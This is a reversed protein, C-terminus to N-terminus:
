TRKLWLWESFISEGLHSRTQNTQSPKLSTWVACAQQKLLLKLTLQLVIGVIINKWALFFQNPLGWPLARSSYMADYCGKTHDLGTHLGKPSISGAFLLRTAISFYDDLNSYTQWFISDSKSLLVGKKPAGCWYVCIPCGEQWHWFTTREQNLCDSEWVRRKTGHRDKPRSQLRPLTSQMFISAWRVIRSFPSLVHRINKDHRISKNFVYQTVITHCGFRPSPRQSCRTASGSIHVLPPVRGWGVVEPGWFLSNFDISQLCAPWPGPIDLSTGYFSWHKIIDHFIRSM